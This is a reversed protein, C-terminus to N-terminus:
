LWFDKSTMLGPKKDADPGDGLRKDFDNLSKIADNYRKIMDEVPSHENVIHGTVMVLVETREVHADTSGALRNLIPIKNIFPLSDLSDEKREQILGGIVMTQGNAITMATEVTRQTITPSEIKSSTTNVAQSLEQKIELSILDNSTIQPTVTLIVGTSVYRYNYQQSGNSSTSTIGSSIVPVDQGVNITAETHSSVLLQPSSLVKVLGDGAMARIYGFRSQPNNPDAIVFTGGNQRNAGTLFEGTNEWMNTETNFVQAFPNMSNSYNTGFMSTVQSGKQQGSFELGFQTSESLTVEVVLVQLLVQAPVVDLRDLLAKISAYTRPTTRIVLRNLVGDAFVKVTKAFISSEKDTATNLVANAAATRNNRATLGTTNPPNNYRARASVVNEMRTRGTTTDISLSAGQTEYITALAQALHAAKNHRVKYVFVREQDSADRSDLLAVWERITSVAEKTAASAVIVQLRDLGVLQVSGPQESRDTNKVVNLGLVPLVEQLESILKSPLVNHCSLVARPWHAKNNRDICQLLERLKPINEPSDSVLIANPRNLEICTGGPSIFQRLQNMAERATATTLPYFLIDSKGDMGPRVDPQQRVKARHMIRLLSDEVKVAGGALTIMHEFTAWLERRTMKSNLNLTVTSKIDSDAVFNFGLVDAFASLVDLLPASNFILSVAIEEDGNLLIFDEYFPKKGSKVGAKKAGSTAAAAKPAVVRSGALSDLKEPSIKITGPLKSEVQEMDISEYAKKVKKQEERRLFAFRDEKTEEKKTEEKKEVEEVSSCGYLAAALPLVALWLFRVPVRSNLSKQKKESMIVGM